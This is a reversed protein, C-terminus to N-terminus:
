RHAPGLRRRASADRHTRRPWEPEDGKGARLRAAQRRCADAHHQRAQSRPPRHRTRPGRRARRQNGRGVHLTRPAAGRRPAPTDRTDRGRGTGHRPIAHWRSIGRTRPADCHAPPEARGPTASGARTTGAPASRSATGGASGQDRRAAGASHGRGPLGMGGAGIKEVVRYHLLTQGARITVALETERAPRNIGCRRSTRSTTPLLLQRGSADTAVFALM